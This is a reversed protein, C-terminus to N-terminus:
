GSRRCRPIETRTTSASSTTRRRSTITRGSPATGFVTTNDAASLGEFTLSPSPIMPTMGSPFSTQLAGDRQQPANPNPLAGTGETNLENVEQGDIDPALQRLFQEDVRSGRRLPLDLLPGSEGSRAAMGAIPKSLSKRQPAATAIGALILTVLSGALLRRPGAGITSM